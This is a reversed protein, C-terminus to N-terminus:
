MKPQCRLCLSIIIRVSVFSPTPSPRGPTLRQPAFFSYFQHPFTMFPRNATTNAASPACWGHGIYTSEIVHLRQRISDRVHSRTHEIQQSLSDVPHEHINGRRCYESNTNGLPNGTYHTHSQCPMRAPIHGASARSIQWASKEIQM